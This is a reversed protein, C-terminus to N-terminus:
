SKKKKKGYVMNELTHKENEMNKLNESWIGHEVTYM